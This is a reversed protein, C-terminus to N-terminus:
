EGRPEPFLKMVADKVLNQLFTHDGAVPAAIWAADFALHAVKRQARPM